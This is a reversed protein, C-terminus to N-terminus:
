PFSLACTPLISSVWESVPQSTQPCRTLLALCDIFSGPGALVALPLGQAPWKGELCGIVLTPSFVM